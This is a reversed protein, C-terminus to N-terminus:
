QKPAIYGIAPKDPISQPIEIAPTWIATYVADGIKVVSKESLIEILKKADAGSYINAEDVKPLDALPWAPVIVDTEAPASGRSNSNMFTVRISEPEYRKSEKPRLNLLLKEMRLLSQIYHNNKDEDGFAGLAYESVVRRLSYNEEDKRSYIRGFGLLQQRM